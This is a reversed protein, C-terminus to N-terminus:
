GEPPKKLVRQRTDPPPIRELAFTRWGDLRRAVASIVDADGEVLLASPKEDIVAIGREVDLRRAAERASVGNEDMRRLIMRM